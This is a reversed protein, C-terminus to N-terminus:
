NTFAFVQLPLTTTKFHYCGCGCDVTTDISASVNVVGTHYHANTASVFMGFLPGSTQLKQSLLWLDQTINYTTASVIIVSYQQVYWCVSASPLPSAAVIIGRPSFVLLLHGIGDLVEMVFLLLVRNGNFTHSALFITSQCCLTMM